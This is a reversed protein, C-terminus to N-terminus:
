KAVGPPNLRVGCHHCFEPDSDAVIRGDDDLFPVKGCGPCIAWHRAQRICYRSSFWYFLGLGYFILWALGSKFVVGFALLFALAFPAYDEIALFVGCRREYLAHRKAWEEIIQEERFSPDVVREPATAQYNLM